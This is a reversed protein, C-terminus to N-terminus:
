SSTLSSTVDVIVVALGCPCRDLSTKVCVILRATSEVAVAAADDSSVRIYARTEPAGFAAVARCSSKVWEEEEEKWLTCFGSKFNDSKQRIRLM